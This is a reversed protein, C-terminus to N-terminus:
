HSESNGHHRTSWGNPADCRVSWQEVSLAAFGLLRRYGRSSASGNRAPVRALTRPTSLDTRHMAASTAQTPDQTASHRLSGVSRVPRHWGYSPCPALTVRPTQSVGQSEGGGPKTLPTLYERPPHM